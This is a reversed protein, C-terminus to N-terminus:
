GRLSRAGRWRGRWGRADSAPTLPIFLSANTKVGERELLVHLRRYGFRRREGALEIMRESLGDEKTRAQYHLVTRSLRLLGCARRESIRTKARMLAVADRRAQPSLIKGASC